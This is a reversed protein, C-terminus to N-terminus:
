KTQKNTQKPGTNPVDTIELDGYNRARGVKSAVKMQQEKLKMTQM